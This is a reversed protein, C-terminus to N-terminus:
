FKFDFGILFIEFSRTRTGKPKFIEVKRFSKKLELQFKSLENSQFFKCVFSGGSQLQANAVNLAMECLEFSRAQDVSRIGTTNPAMDSLVVHLKEPMEFQRLLEDINCKLIDAQVFEANPLKLNVSTLDLGLLRGKPGIKQSTYQSWSGPAAGLDLVQMGSKLLKFRQDIEELKFVSRAKFGLEKAKKFYHDQIKYSM